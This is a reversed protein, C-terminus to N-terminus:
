KRRCKEEPTVVANPCSIEERKVSPVAWRVANRIIRRVYDNFYSKNTEHGPQFYFIKGYGRTWTCGSRFVEGGRYWSIFVQDDPKPIDFYEGYMEEEELEFYQPIGEAIPHAPCTNWVRCFDGERWQLSGSTGLLKQLPKSPHASHLAIFGMGKLVYERVREAIEDPVKDHAVHAWWVLVDTDDLVEKTLGCEEMELTAIHCVEIGSEEELLGKLTHHIAGGHVARIEKARQELERRVEEPMGERVAAGSDSDMQEQVYENWVTVKIM